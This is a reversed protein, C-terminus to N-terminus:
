EIFWCFYNMAIMLKGKREKWKQPEAQYSDCVRGTTNRM